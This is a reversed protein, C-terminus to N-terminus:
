QGWILCLCSFSIFQFILIVNELSFYRDCEDIRKDFYSLNYFSHLWSKKCETSLRWSWRSQFTPMSCVSPLLIYCLLWQLWWGRNWGKWPNKWAVGNSRYFFMTWWRWRFRFIWDLIWIRKWEDKRCCFLEWISRLLLWPFRPCFIQYWFIM